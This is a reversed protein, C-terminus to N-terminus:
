EHEGGQADVTPLLVTAIAGQSTSNLIIDGGIRRVIKRSIWLGLGTGKGAEKTSYFPEFARALVDSTMGPGNDSVILKVMAEECTARVVITPAEAGPVSLVADRANVVLNTLIQLLESHGIAVMPLDEHERKLSVGLLEIQRGYLDFCDNIVEHVSSSGGSNNVQRTSALLREIVDKTRVSARLILDLNQQQVTSVAGERVAREASNLIAGLPSNIEHAVSSAITGLTAMREQEILTATAHELEESKRRLEVVRLRLTEESLILAHTLRERKIASGINTAFSQLINVETESWSRETHVDDFGITGWLKGDVIIPVIAMSRIGQALLPMAEDGPLDTTKGYIPRNNSFETLWRQFALDWVRMPENELEEIMAGRDCDWLYNLLVGSNEAHYDMHHVVHARDARLARAVHEVARQITESTDTNELLWTSAESVAIASARQDRLLQENMKLTTIDRIYATFLQGDRSQIPKIALEIPFVTGDSRMAEIEIRRGLVPGIGTRLYRSMGELHQRRHQEPMILEHMQQGIVRERSYGFIGEAAPNFEVIRGQDDIVVVGDLASEVVAGRLVHEDRLEEESHVIATVDRYIWVHGTSTANNLMPIYDRELVRGDKMTLREGLVSQQAALVEAIRDLFEVEDVFLTKVQEAAAACDMGRLATPPAEIGFMSCFATNVLVLRRDANETLVGDAYEQLLTWLSSLSPQSNISMDVANM